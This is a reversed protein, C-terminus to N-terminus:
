AEAAEAEALHWSFSVTLAASLLIGNQNNRVFVKLHQDIYKEPHEAAIECLARVAQDSVDALDSCDLGEDDLLYATPEQVDFFYRAM